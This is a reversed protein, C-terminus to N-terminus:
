NGGDVLGFHNYNDLLERGKEVNLPRHTSCLASVVNMVVIVLMAPRKMMVNKVSLCLILGVM